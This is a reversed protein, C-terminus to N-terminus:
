KNVLNLAEKLVKEGNLMGYDIMQICEVPKESFKTKVENLRYKVQPGLLIIDARSGYEEIKSLSFAAIEIEEQTKLAANQMKKVMLSTSMGADCFLYIKM